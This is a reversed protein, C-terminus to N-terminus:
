GRRGSPLSKFRYGGGLMLAFAIAFTLVYLTLKLPWSGFTGPRQTQPKAPDRSSHDPDQSVILRHGTELRVLNDYAADRENAWGAATLGAFVVLLVSAAVGFVILLRDKADKMVYVFIAFAAAIAWGNANYTQGNTYEFWSRTLEYENM